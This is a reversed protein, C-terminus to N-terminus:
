WEGLDFQLRAVDEPLLGDRELKDLHAALTVAAAPRLAGPVDAWAADLLEDTSRLGEDLAARLSQERETRHAIYEELKAKPDWVPPGHGPCIVEVDDRARLRALGEMYGSMAGPYPSVFVSGEGLVADGAFCAGSAILAFHDEAHGPMAMAQLPGFGAGDTLIVDAPGSGAALPAPRESLLVEVAECHDAHRHTLAVGGLGGREDIARLIRVVHEDLLPGPDIVWAPGRGFVWTNTGSLTLMGPNDARLLLIDRASLRETDSAEGGPDQGRATQASM